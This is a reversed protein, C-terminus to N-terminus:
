LKLTNGVYFTDILNKFEKEISHKTCLRWFETCVRCESSMESPHAGNRIILLWVHGTARPSTLALLPAMSPGPPSIIKELKMGGVLVTHRQRGPKRQLLQLKQCCSPFSSKIKKKRVLRNKSKQPYVSLILRLICSTFRHASQMALLLLSSSPSPFFSSFSLCGESVWSLWLSPRRSQFYHSLCWLPRDEEPQPAWTNTCM